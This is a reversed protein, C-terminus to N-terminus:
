KGRGAPHDPRKHWSKCKLRQTFYRAAWPAANYMDEVSMTFLGFSVSQSDTISM